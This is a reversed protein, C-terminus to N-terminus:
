HHTPEFACFVAEDVEFVFFLTETWLERLPQGGGERGGSARGSNLGSAPVSSGVAPCHWRCGARVVLMLDKRVSRKDEM